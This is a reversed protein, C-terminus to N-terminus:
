WAVRDGGEEAPYPLSFYTAEAVEEEECEEGAGAHPGVWPLSDEVFKELTPGERPSRNKMFQEPMLGKGLTYAKLFPSSWCPDGMPDCTRGSFRSWRPSREVPGALLRSWCPSEM